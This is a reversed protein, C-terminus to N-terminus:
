RAVLYSIHKTDYGKDKARQPGVGIQDGVGISALRRNDIWGPIPLQDCGLGYLAMPPNALDPDGMGVEVVDAPGPLQHALQILCRDDGQVRVVPQEPVLPSLRVKETEAEGGTRFRCKGKCFPRIQTQAVRGELNIMSGPM